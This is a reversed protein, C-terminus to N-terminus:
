LLLRKGVKLVKTTEQEVKKSYFLIKLKQSEYVHKM